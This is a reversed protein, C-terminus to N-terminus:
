DDTESRQKRLPRSEQNDDEVTICKQTEYNEVLYNFNTELYELKKIRLEFELNDIYGM